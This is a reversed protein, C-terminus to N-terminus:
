FFDASKSLTMVSDPSGISARSAGKSLNLCFSGVLSSYNRARVWAVCSWCSVRDAGLADRGRPDVAVRPNGSSRDTTADADHTDIKRNNYLGCLSARPASLALRMNLKRLLTASTVPALRPM